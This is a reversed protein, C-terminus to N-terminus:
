RSRREGIEILQKGLIWGQLSPNVMARTYGAQHDLIRLLQGEPLEFLVRAEETPGNRVTAMRTTTVAVPVEADIHDRGLLLIGLAASMVFGTLAAWSLLTRRNGASLVRRSFLAAFALLYFIGFAWALEHATFATLLYYWWEFSGAGAATGKAVVRVANQAQLARRAARINAALDDDHPSLRRAREYWGLAEGRRDLQFAANGLNYFLDASLTGYSAVRAWSGYAREYREAWYDRAGRDFREQLNSAAGKEAGAALASGTVLLFVLAILCRM